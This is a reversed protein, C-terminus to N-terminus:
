PLGLFYIHFKVFHCRVHFKWIKVQTKVIRIFNTMSKRSTKPEFLFRSSILYKPFSHIIEKYKM